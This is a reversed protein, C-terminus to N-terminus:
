GHCTDGAAKGTRCRKRQRGRTGNPMSYIRSKATSRVREQSCVCPSGGKSPAFKAARVQNQCTIVIQSRSGFLTNVTDPNQPTTVRFNVVTSRTSHAHSDCCHCPQRAASWRTCGAVTKAHCRRPNRRNQVRFLRRRVPRGPTGASSWRRLRPPSGSWDRSGFWPRRDTTGGTVNRSSKTRTVRARSDVKRCDCCLGAPRM